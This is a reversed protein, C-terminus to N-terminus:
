RLPVARRVIDTSIMDVAGCSYSFDCQLVDANSAHGQLHSLTMPIAVTRCAM